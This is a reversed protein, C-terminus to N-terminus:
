AKASNGKDPKLRVGNEENYYYDSEPDITWGGNLEPGLDLLREAHQIGFPRKVGNPTVLLITQERKPRAM